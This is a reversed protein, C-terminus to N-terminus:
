FNYFDVIRIYLTDTVEIYAVFNNPDFTCVHVLETCLRGLIHKLQMGGNLPLKSRGMCLLVHQRLVTIILCFISSLQLSISCNYIASLLLFHFIMCHNSQLYLFHELYLVLDHCSMKHCLGYRKFTETM